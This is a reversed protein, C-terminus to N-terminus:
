SRSMSRKRVKVAGTAARAERVAETGVIVAGSNGIATAAGIAALANEAVPVVTAARAEVVVPGIRARVATRAAAVGNKQRRRKQQRKRKQRLCKSEKILQQRCGAAGV